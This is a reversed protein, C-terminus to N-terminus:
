YDYNSTTLYSDVRANAENILNEPFDLVELLRIANRTNSPGDVLKYDFSITNDELIRERFHINRAKNKFIETLEIDHTSIYTRAGKELLFNIVSASASIREITNTGKLIEDIFYYSFKNEQIDDIIRKLSKTEAVFYSDGEFVNDKVAMSTIIKGKKMRFDDALAMFITQGLIRNIGISKVYTSKGSANSGSVIIIGDLNVDNGVPETLLPHKINEGFIGYSQTFDSKVFNESGLYKKYSLVSIVAELYALEKLIDMMPETNKEIDKKAIEYFIFPVMFIINFYELLLSMIDAGKNASYIYPLKTLKKM